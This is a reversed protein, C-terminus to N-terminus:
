KSEMLWFAEKIALCFVPLSECCLRNVRVTAAWFVTLSNQKIEISVDKLVTHMGYNFHLNKVIIASTM